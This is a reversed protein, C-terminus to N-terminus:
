SRNEDIEIGMKQMLFSANFSNCLGPSLKYDFILDEGEVRSNFSMADVSELKETMEGLSLDHTSVWGFCNLGSLQKILSVSGMHRDTSNTGKLVEDIMFMVPSQDGEMLDLLGRLRKLEAYFSSINEELIDANRMSTYLRFSSFTFQDACVSAGMQALCINVGVTRLFTSKGSMNSGTIIVISGKGQLTVDNNVRDSYHILPHGLSKANLEYDKGSPIVTSYDPHILRHSSISVMAELYALQKFWTQIITAHKDKWSGLSRIIFFDLMFLINLIAFFANARAHLVDLWRNLRFVAKSAQFTDTSFSSHLEKLLKTEFTSQEVKEILRAYGKLAKNGEFTLEMLEKQRKFVRSLLYGNIALPVLLTGFPIMGLIVLVLPAIIIVICTLIWHLGLKFEKSDDEGLWKMLLNINKAQDGSVKGLAQFDQLWELDNALEESSKQRDLIEEKPSANLMWSSITERGYNTATRNILQFLSHSGFLDLDSSYPHSIDAYDEGGDFRDLKLEIRDIEDQNIQSKNRAISKEFKIRNHRKVVIAFVALYVVLTAAIGWASRDNAFYIILALASITLIIRSYSIRRFRGELEDAEGAFREHREQLM